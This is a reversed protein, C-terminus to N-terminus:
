GIPLDQSPAGFTQPSSHLQHRSWYWGLKMGSEALRRHRAATLEDCPVRAPYPQRHATSTRGDIRWSNLCLVVTKKLMAKRLARNMQRHLTRTGQRGNRGPKILDASNLSIYPTMKSIGQAEVPGSLGATKMRSHRRHAYYEVGRKIAIELETETLRQHPSGRIACIVIDIFSHGPHYLLDDTSDPKQELKDFERQRYQLPYYEDVGLRPAPGPRTSLGSKVNKRRSLFVSAVGAASNRPRRRNTWISRLRDLAVRSHTLTKQDHRRSPPVRIHNPFLGAVSSLGLSFVNLPLPPPPPSPPAHHLCRPVGTSQGGGFGRACPRWVSTVGHPM